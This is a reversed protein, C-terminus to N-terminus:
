RNDKLWALTKKIGEIRSFPLNPAIEKTNSLDVVNNTTMNKLRFLTMPFKIGLINLIDGGIAVFKIIFYPITKISIGLEVAIENAWDKINTPEYDGLYFVNSQIKEAPANLIAAIQFTFNEIYGYTKSTSKNGIHFYKKHIIMDFFDIYPEGFWPGWISTPRAIAWQYNHSSTRIFKEMLIKSEGYKTSPAYDMSHKPIYGPKCVLMSSTFIVRKVSSVQNLIHILNKTGITNADYDEIRKGKLDTRAALHIVFEPQYNTIEAELLAFNLIDVKRWYKLNAKQNPSHVDFNVVNFGNTSFYELLNSGIFGSGGTIIIKKNEM